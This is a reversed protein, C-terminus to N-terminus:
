EAAPEGGPAAEAEDQCLALVLRQRGGASAEVSIAVTLADFVAFARGTRASRVRFGDGELRWGGGAAAGCAHM